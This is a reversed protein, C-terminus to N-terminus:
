GESLNKKGKSDLCCAPDAKKVQHFRSYDIIREGDPQTVFVDEFTSDWLIEEPLYSRQAHVSQILTDDIGTFSAIIEADMAQLSELHHGYFPSEETIPHVALWTLGFVPTFPRVLKMDHFRRLFQGEATVENRLLHLTLEAKVIRNTRENAMRFMLSPVKSQLHVVANHSFVVRATPRSFKAFFLGTVLALGLMGMFVEASSVFNAWYGLPHLKGYGLTAMTQVSFFFDDWFSGPQANEIVNGGALYLFAFLSNLVFLLAVIILFFLPWGIMLFFHYVDTFVHRRYGVRTVATRGTPGIVKEKKQFRSKLSM